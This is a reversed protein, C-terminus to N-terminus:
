AEGYEDFHSLLIQGCNSKIENEELEGISLHLDFPGEEIEEIIRYRYSEEETFVNILENEEANLTPNLPTIKVAFTEPDFINELKETDIQEPDSLAFNLTVKRGGVYFEKGYDAIKELSWKENPMLDNRKEESTSHISFQLQFTGKYTEENLKKLKQFWDDRGKPAITSICPMYNEPEYKERIAEITELVAPNLAPDGIRAFQVKFKDSKIGNEPGHNEILYDVQEMMEEKSLNGEYFRNADCFRCDLPCGALSSLILVWKKKRSEASGLSEVFEVYREEGLDALYATAINEDGRRELIEM